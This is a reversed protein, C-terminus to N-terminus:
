IQGLKHIAILYFQAQAGRQDIFDANMFNNSSFNQRKSPTQISFDSKSDGDVDIFIAAWSKQSNNFMDAKTPEAFNLFFWFEDPNTDSIAYDLRYLDYQRPQVQQSDTDVPGTKYEVWEASAVNPFFLSLLTSILIVVIAKRM